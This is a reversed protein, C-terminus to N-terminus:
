NGLDIIDNVMTIKSFRENLKQILGPTAKGLALEAKFDKNQSDLYLHCNKMYEAANDDLNKKKAAMADILSLTKASLAKYQAVANVATDLQAKLTTLNKSKSELAQADKFAKDLADLEKVGAEYYTKDESLGFGRMEYMVRSAAGSIDSAVSVEPVYESSLIISNRSVKSMNWIGVIGLVISIVILLGFGLAIKMGM